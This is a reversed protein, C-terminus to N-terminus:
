NPPAKQSAKWKSVWYGTSAWKAGEMPNVSPGAYGTPTRADLDEVPDGQSYISGSPLRSHEQRGGHDPFFEQVSSVMLSTCLKSPSFSWPSIVRQAWRLNITVCVIETWPKFSKSGHKTRTFQVAGTHHLPVKIWESSNTAHINFLFNLAKSNVMRTSNQLVGPIGLEARHIYVQVM